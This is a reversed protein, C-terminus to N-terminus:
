PSSWQMLRYPSQGPQEITAIPRFGVRRWFRTASTNSVDPDVTFRRWGLEQTVHAAVLRVVRAGLGLSRSTPLLVLDMGGGEGGDDAEHHLTFGIDNAKHEVIYAEAQPARGGMYKHVLERDSLPTGGWDLYIGPRSFLRSLCLLGCKEAPQLVLDGDALVHSM